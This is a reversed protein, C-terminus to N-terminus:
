PQNNDETQQVSFHKNRIRGLKSLPKYINNFM